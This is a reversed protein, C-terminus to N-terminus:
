MSLFSHTRHSDCFGWRDLTEQFHQLGHIKPGESVGEGTRWSEGLM